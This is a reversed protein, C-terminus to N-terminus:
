ASYGTHRHHRLQEAAEVTVRQGQMLGAFNGTQGNRKWASDVNDGSQHGLGNRSPLINDRRIGACARDAILLAAYDRNPAERAEARGLEM